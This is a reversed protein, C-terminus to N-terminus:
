QEPGRSTKKIMIGMKDKNSFLFMIPFVFQQQQQKLLQAMEKPRKVSKGMKSIVLDSSNLITAELWM